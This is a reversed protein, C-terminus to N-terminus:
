SYGYSVVMGKSVGLYLFMLILRITIRIITTGTYHDEKDFCIKM